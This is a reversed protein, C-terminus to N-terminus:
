CVAARRAYFVTSAGGVSIRIRHPCGNPPAPVHVDVDRTSDAVIGLPRAPGYANAGVWVRLAATAGPRGASSVRIPVDLGRAPIVVPRDIGAAWGNLAVSTFGPPAPHPLRQYVVAAAGAIVLAVAAPLAVALYTGPLRPDAPPRVSRERLLVVAGLGTTLLVLGVALSRTHIAVGLVHLVIAVLPLSVLGAAAGLGIRVVAAIAEGVLARLWLEGVALLAALCLVPFLWPLVPVLALVALAAYAIVVLRLPNM